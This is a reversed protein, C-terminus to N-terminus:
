IWHNKEFQPDLTIGVLGDEWAANKSGSPHFNVNLKGATVTTKSEPKWIRIAGTREIFIVRGDPAVALEMPDSCATELVIKQFHNEVTNTPGSAEAADNHSVSSIVLLVTCVKWNRLCNLITRLFM